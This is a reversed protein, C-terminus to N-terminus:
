KKYNQYKSNYKAKAVARRINTMPGYKQLLNIYYDRKQEYREQIAKEDRWKQIDSSMYHVAIKGHEGVKRHCYVMRQQAGVELGMWLALAALGGVGVNALKNQLGM